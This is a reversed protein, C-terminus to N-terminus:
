RSRGKINHKAAIEALKQSAKPNVKPSNKPRTETSWSNAVRVENQKSLVEKDHLWKPKNSPTKTVKKIDDLKIDEYDLYRKQNLWTSCHCIYTQETGEAECHAVFKELSDYLKDKDYTKTVVWYKLKATHKSIKRPYIKWFKEFESNIFDKTDEKTNPSSPLVGQPEELPLPNQLVGQELTLTYINSKNGGDKKYRHQITLYGRKSLEKIIKGIHKSSKIGALEAIHSHSPFCSNKEDCYNSLLILVLKQTPTLGHVEHITTSICKVSM